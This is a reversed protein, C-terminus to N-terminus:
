ERENDAAAKIGKGNMAQNIIDGALNSAKRLTEDRLHAYRQTMQPSKHTLLKQLTYMDVQGSSALMSAYVHRLGHLPRFDEPLAARKKIKEIPQPTDVRGKGKRGPFVYSSIRPHGLLVNRAMENLPIRQSPGGKPHVINIFGREFDVHDWQLRFMEGRRMGTYLALLMMNGAQTDPERKIEELLRALQSSDLDETKINHVRPMQIGFAFGQCLQKKVGFNVIRRLLELVNRVTAPKLTKLLGIRIRDIDLPVLDRPESDGLKERLYCNFRDDDRDIAKVTPSQTKYTQWLRSITWRDQESKRQAEELERAEKRSLRKGEIREARITNARAPTMDDAFQRGVKEELVKGDKKFVIYYVREVGAGGIREAERYYVGPYKTKHRPKGSM